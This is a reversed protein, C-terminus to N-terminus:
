DSLSQDPIIKFDGSEMLHALKSSGDDECPHESAVIDVTGEQSFTLQEVVYVNESVSPNVLTFVSNHFKSDTVIGNSVTMKGDEVEESDAKFFSVDYDGDDLHTVSTVQGNTGITGNNASSYPSSETIVKIFAGAELNLGDVTTSFSITHTVLERLGLFYKAVKVAHEKSTCFQALNFQESPLDKINLNGLKSDRRKRNISVEVVKEEPFKNKSEQRYRVNAKFPRREEARLYELKFSDELINGSTFLQKIEVAGTNISGGAKSPVAPVLAFKGDSLVFNCLFNPAMDTIFQRLNINEGIVGNFFLEQQRLFRSTAIFKEKDLLDPNAPTMGTLGGAGSVQNTFLHFVLDTLLNSPGESSNNGQYTSLNPHLREVCIGKGIWTRLQDLQTFNRSAKLSLGAMTLDDFAPAQDNPLIENVYVIEHEPESENSKQVLSRYFSIDNFQSQGEFVVEADIENSAAITELQTIKFRFGASDYVTKFPNNSAIALKAAFKDNVDWDSTTSNGQLVKFSAATWSKAEGSWHDAPLYKVESKYEIRISKGDDNTYTAGVTRTTGLALDRAYHGASGFLEYFFGDTRGPIKALSETSAVEYIQGSWRLVDGNANRKFNNSDRYPNPDGGPVDTGGIGRKIEIPSGVTRGKSSLLVEVGQPSWVHAQGNAVAFHTSPLKRKLLTWRLIVFDTGDANFFEKTIITTTQNSGVSSDDPNGAMEFTMAGNRGAVANAKNSINELFDVTAIQTDPGDKRVPIVATKEILNPPGFTSPQFSFSPKRMFEKNDRITSRQVLSGAAAIKFPGNIGNVKVEEEVLSTEAESDPRTAALKIFEATDKVARMEASPLPVLKFELEQPELGEPNKIRIFNYQSVPRQGVVTFFVESGTRESVLPKFSYEESDKDVGAKRIFMRFSSSRAIAATITGTTVAINDEDLKDIEKSSPLGPFSCLGQLNQFVTSRIGLETVVAPRNNRITATAIHTLPFFGAGVGQVDDIYVDPKVVKALNVIGIKKEMSEKTDICKLHIKQDQKEELEPNFELNRSIVVWLTNGIAFIEGRQMASDAALQESLVTSNIDDVKEGVQGKVSDYVDKRIESDSIIFVAEDGEKVDIVKTLEDSSTTTSVGDRIHRVIGMRPSYQRGTGTHDQKRVLKTYKKDSSPTTGPDIGKSSDGDRGLNLDGIIKLRRIINARQDKDKVKDRPVSIVRYNLRYGTGNAIAGYVGFRVNNVPSYSHCFAEPDNDITDSPCVFVEDNEGADPDGSAGDDLRTGALLDREGLVLGNEGTKYEQKWYFAFLNEYIVDLANNGLFIGELDPRAIGSNPSADRVGQEGVVFLLKAQQQTGHSFMRSWVLRPEVLMGGVKKTEDYLGFIIPIPSSYDALENLTDFGRSSTFRSAGTTSDLDLRGSKPASPMKPKPTLLYAIGTLTLSIAVNTLVITAATKGAVTPALYTAAIAPGALPGAMQIDPIHDYEAPRVCGRRRAESAFLQYEEETIGITEILQKEYPLLLVEYVTPGFVVAGKRNKASYLSHGKAM